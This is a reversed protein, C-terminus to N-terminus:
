KLDELKKFDIGKAYAEMIELSVENGELTVLLKHGVVINITGDTDDKSYEIVAKQSSIKKVKMGSSTAMAPNSLFLLMTQLMPSDTVVRITIESDGKTYSREASVMGGLMASGAAASEAESAEWGDLPKPLFGTLNESKKQRVLQAALDLNSIAESYEGKKYQAMAEKITDTIEDARAFGSFFILAAILMFTYRM